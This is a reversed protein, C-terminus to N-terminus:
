HPSTHATGQQIGISVEKVIIYILTNANTIISPDTISQNFLKILPPGNCDLVFTLDCIFYAIDIM